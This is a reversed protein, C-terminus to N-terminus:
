NGGLVLVIWIQIPRNLGGKPNLLRSKLFLNLLALIPSILLQLRGFEVAEIHIRVHELLHLLQRSLSFFRNSKASVASLSQVVTRGLRLLVEKNVVDVISGAVLSSVLLLM